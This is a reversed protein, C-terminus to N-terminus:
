ELFSLLADQFQEPVELHPNHGVGEFEVLAANPIAEAAARGLEPLQGITQRVEEPVRSRGPSTRDEQGIVLLTPTQVRPFEHVVPQLLIMQVIQARAWAMRPYEGSLTWRYHVSVYEDYEDKWAVYYTKHYARIKEETQALASKYVADASVWPATQRYDELGLPNVLVLKETAEPYMLAFRSALMGGMSHGVVVTRQVGLTELLAKTNAALWHFSYPLDPKSSKGFGIQDPVIVRFGAASLTEITRAWYAGFFNAGHLLTVARGNTPGAPAVDMYGMRLDQGRYTIAHFEVRYPYPYGEMAIGLADVSSGDAASTAQNVAGFSLMLLGVLM